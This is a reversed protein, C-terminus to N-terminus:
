EVPDKPMIFEENGLSVEDEFLPIYNEDELDGDMAHEDHSAQGDEREAQEFSPQVHNNEDKADDLTSNDRTGTNSNKSHRPKSRRQQRRRKSQKEPPNDETAEDGDSEKPIDMM